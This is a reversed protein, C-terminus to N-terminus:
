HHASVRLQHVLLNEHMLHLHLLLLLLLGLLERVMLSLLLPAHSTCVSTGRTNGQSSCTHRGFALLLQEKAEILFCLLNDLRIIGAGFGLRTCGFSM